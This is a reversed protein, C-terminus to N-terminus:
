LTHRSGLLLSLPARNNGYRLTPLLLLPYVWVCVFDCLSVGLLLHDLNEPFLFTEHENEAPTHQQSTHRGMLGEAFDASCVSTNHLYTLPLQPFSTPKM